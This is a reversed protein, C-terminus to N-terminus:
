TKTLGITLIVQYMILHEKASEAEIYVVHASMHNRRAEELFGLGGRM